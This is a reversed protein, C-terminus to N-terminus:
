LPVEQPPGPEGPTTATGADAGAPLFLEVETGVGPESEIRARGGARAMRDVISRQIGLRDDAVDSPDFGDGSDRVFVDIGGSHREAFVDVRDVGAHKAANTMAEGIALVLPEIASPELDVTDGVTIVEVRIDHDREIRSAMAQIAPGLRTTGPQEAKHEAYLWGRLDREQQRAIQATRKPDHAHRQILMLTQLVSDHLHAAMRAREDARVRQQREEDLETGIRLLSPGVVLGLGLLIALAVMLVRIAEWSDVNMAAVTIMGGAAVVVGATIRLTAPVGGEERQRSWAILFGTLVFGIPFVIEDVFGFGLTRLGLFLGLVVMALGVYRHTPTLAKPMSQYSPNSPVTALIAWILGYFVLGWGGAMTLAVFSARVALPAVGLETALAASVGGVLRDERDLPPVQWRRGGAPAAGDPEDVLSAMQDDPRQDDRM